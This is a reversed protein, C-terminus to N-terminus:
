PVDALPDSAGPALLRALGWAAHDCTYGDGGNLVRLVLTRGGAVDVRFRHVGGQRMVPSEAVVRNDLLVQFQISGAGASAEVGAEAAFRDVQLAGLDIEVDAPTADNFAHTWVGKRCTQNGVRIPQHTLNDDRHVTNDAGATARRWPLDSLFRVGRLDKGPPTLFSTVGGDNARLGGWAIAEVRWHLTRNAPLGDLEATPNVVSRTRLPRLMEPDEAVTVRYSTAGASPQWALRVRADFPTAEARAPSLSFRGPQRFGAPAPMATDQVFVLDSTYREPLRLRLGEDMLEKGTRHGPVVSGDQSGFRYRRRPELGKLRIAFESEPADPRFAFLLGRRERPSWYFMGDWHAGDPRPLVHHVKVDRLLPRIWEKYTTAALRACARDEETWLRTNTPDIQWAGMMASRWLFAGPDDGPVHYEREYTYAQLVLPPFAQTSDYLSQRDPLNSLTDTTVVYHTRAMAGYDKIHGGGSCNELILRPYTRRLQEQVEYYGRAAWYGADVGYHHRHGTQACRTVIPGIDHKLYDLRHTGVLWQTKRIAWDRADLCGLCLQAGYFPGPKWDPAFSANFWDPHAVPGRVSLAGPDSSIGGNSWACWLALRMGHGHVWSEIPVIGGPFRRPDWRWDGCEPFWMADPMFTEFGLDHCFAASRLVDAERAQDGGADLYLNYALTPDPVDKPMAPRLHEIIWRHLTYSGDDLDGVYCGIFAPPVPFTEDPAVDTKFDPLNGARLALGAIADPQTAALRGPGSFEWGLYLGRKAEQQLALWPVPSAGDECNSVLNLNLGPRVAEDFTGGQTSANSGGRKIWRIRAPGAAQLGELALSDQHGVTFPRPSHNVIEAWHEVPGPGPRARWTSRLALAPSTNTLLLTLTGARRDRQTNVFSWQLAIERGDVWGRSLLPVPAPQRLWNWGPPDQRARLSAIVLRHDEVRLVLRTDDTALTTTFGIPSGASVPSASALLAIVCSAAVFFPRSAWPAPSGARTLNM